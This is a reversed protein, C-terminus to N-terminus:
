MDGKNKQKVVIHSGKVHVVEVLSEKPLFDGQSLAQYLKGEIRVHGAPKLETVVVGIKGQLSEELNAAKFGSQDNQLFFSNRKGSKKINRFAYICLFVASLGLLLLYLAGLLLSNSASFFLFLSVAVICCGLIALLGGPLFFECYLCLLGLLGIIVALIM